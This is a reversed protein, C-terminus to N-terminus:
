CQDVNLLKYEAHQKGHHFLESGVCRNLDIDDANMNLADPKFESGMVAGKFSGNEEIPFVRMFRMSSKQPEISEGTLYKSLFSEAADLGFTSNTM